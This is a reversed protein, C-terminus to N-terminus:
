GMLLTEQFNEVMPILIFEQVMKKEMKGNDKTSKETPILGYETDMLCNM